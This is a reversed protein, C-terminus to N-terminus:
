KKGGKGVKSSYNKVYQYCRYRVWVENFILLALSSIILFWRFYRVHHAYQEYFPDIVLLEAVVISIASLIFVMAIAKNVEYWHVGKKRLSRRFLNQALHHHPNIKILECSIHVSEKIRDLNYYCAAKCFLLDEYINRGNVDYINEMIVTEIMEDVESLYKAYKGIEFLAFLYDSKIEVIEEFTLTNIEGRHLEFYRVKEHYSSRDIRFFKVYISEQGSM